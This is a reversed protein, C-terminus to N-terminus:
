IAFMSDAIMKAYLEDVVALSRIFPLYRVLCRLGVMFRMLIGLLSRFNREDRWRGMM